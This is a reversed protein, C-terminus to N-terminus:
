SILFILKFPSIYFKFNKASVYIYIKLHPTEFPTEAVFMSNIRVKEVISMFKSNVERLKLLSNIDLYEFLFVLIEFPLDNLYAM